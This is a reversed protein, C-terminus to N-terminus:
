LATKCAPRKVVYQLGLVGHLWFPQWPTLLFLGFVDVPMQSAPGQKPWTHALMQPLVDPGHVFQPPTAYPFLKEFPM